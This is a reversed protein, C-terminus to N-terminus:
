LIFGTCCNNQQTSAFTYKNNRALVLLYKGLWLIIEFIDYIFSHNINNIIFQFRFNNVYFAVLEYLKM